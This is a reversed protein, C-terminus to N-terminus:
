GSVSDDGTPTSISDDGSPADVTDDGTPGAITDDGGPPADPDAVNAAATLAAAEDSLHSQIDNFRSLQQATIGQQSLADIAAQLKKALDTFKDAAHNVANTLVGIAAETESLETDFTESM